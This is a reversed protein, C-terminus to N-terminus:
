IRGIKALHWYSRGLGTLRVGNSHMAAYYLDDDEVTRILHANRFIKLNNFIAVHQPDCTPHSHEYSPDLNLTGVPDPFLDPLLRLLAPAVRPLCKRVPSLRSAHSKYLPRQDWAGLGQDILAYIAAASVNGLLDAAGGHLAHLLMATFMGHGGIEAAAEEPRSAALITVGERLVAKSAITGHVSAPNGTAGSHCCDLILLVERPGESKNALALLEDMNIGPDGASADQTMMFGGVDTLCGHGAFYFLAADPGPAFLKQLEQRLLGRTVETSGANKAPWTFARCEYNLSGDEHTALVEALLEADRVCGTLPKLNDYHNIGVILARRSM